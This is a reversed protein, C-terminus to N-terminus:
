CAASPRAPLRPPEVHTTRERSPLSPTWRNGCAWHTHYCSLTAHSDDHASLATHDPELRVKIFTPIPYIEVNSVGWLGVCIAAVFIIIFVVFDKLDYLM